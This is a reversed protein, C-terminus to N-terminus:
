AVLQRHQAALVGPGPQLGGVSRQERREAPQQWPRAPRHEQHLGLRQQAPVPAHNAPAPGVRAGAHSPRRERVVDLLEDDPKGALVRSPAVLADVALQQAKATAHRGARDPPHQAGVAEPGAGRRAGVLQRDNRRWCAAPIMAQSKKM